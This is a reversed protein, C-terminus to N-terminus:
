CSPPVRRTVRVPELGFTVRRLAAAARRPLRYWLGRRFRGCYLGYVLVRDLRRTAALGAVMDGLKLRFATAGLRPAPARQVPRDGYYFDSFTELARRDVIGVCKANNCAWLDGPKIDKASAAGAALWAAAGAVVAIRLASMSAM